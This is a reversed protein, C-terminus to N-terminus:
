LALQLPSSTSMAAARLLQFFGGGQKCLGYLLSFVNVLLFSSTAGKSTKCDHLELLPGYGNCADLTQRTAEKM